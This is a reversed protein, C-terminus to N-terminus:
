LPEAGLLAADSGLAAAVISPKTAGTWTHASVHHRIRPLIYDSQAMVGGGIVVVLPDYAHILNMVAACWVGVCRDRLRMAALDGDEALKFVTAFNLSAHLALRSTRFDPDAAALRPLAWTSAAAELCGVGGCICPDGGVGTSLHGGLVGAQFGQGRLLRGEMMVATGLGTGITLLAADNAGRLSGAHREGLLAMRADLELKVGLGLTKAAWEAFDFLVADEFKGAPTSLIKGVHPDLLAPFAIALGVAVGGSEALVDALANEIGPLLARFSTADTFEVNRRAVVRGHEVLGCGIHSGGVDLALLRTM